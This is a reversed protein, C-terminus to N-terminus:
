LIFIDLKTTESYLFFYAKILVNLKSARTEKLVSNVTKTQDWSASTEEIFWKKAHVRKDGCLRREHLKFKVRTIIIWPMVAFYFRKRFLWWSLFLSERNRLMYSLKRSYIEWMAFEFLRWKWSMLVWVVRTVFHSGRIAGMNPTTEPLPERRRRWRFKVGASVKRLSAEASSLTNLVWENTRENTWENMWENM